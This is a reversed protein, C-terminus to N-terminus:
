SHTEFVSQPRLFVAYEVLLAALEPYCHERRAQGAASRLHQAFAATVHVGKDELARVLATMIMEQALIREELEVLRMELDESM